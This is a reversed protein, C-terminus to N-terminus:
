KNGGKWTTFEVINRYTRGKAKHEESTIEILRGEAWAKQLDAYVTSSFTTYDSGDMMTVKHLVYTAAREIVKCERIKHPREDASLPRGHSTPSPKPESTRPESKNSDSVPAPTDIEGGAPKVGLEKAKRLLEQRHKYVAESAALEKELMQNWGEWQKRWRDQNPSDKVPKLENKLPKADLRRWYAVTDKKGARDEELVYVHVAYKEKWAECWRNDWLESAIGLDKCCRILANSKVSEAADAKDANFNPDGNRKTAFYKTSGFATAVVRGLVILAFERAMQGPAEMLDTVPRMAWGMPGIAANLRRRYFVHPMYVEGDPRIYVENTQVVPAALIKQVAKPLPKTGAQEFTRDRISIPEASVSVIEGDPVDRRALATSTGREPVYEYDKTSKKAVNGEVHISLAPTRHASGEFEACDMEVPDGDARRAVHWNGGPM